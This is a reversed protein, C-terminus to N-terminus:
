AGSEPRPAPIVEVDPPPPAPRGSLDTHRGPPSPREDRMAVLSGATIGLAAALGLWLGWERGALGDPLDLVRILVLLVALAGAFTVLVTFAIPVAPQAQTATIALLGVALAAILALVIDLVALSEWGSAAAEAAGYWPLFLSVLLALGSAATIWEGARLRRLDMARCRLAADSPSPETRACRSADRVTQPGIPEDYTATYSV